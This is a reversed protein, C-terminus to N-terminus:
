EVKQQEKEGDSPLEIKRVRIQDSGGEGIAQMKEM